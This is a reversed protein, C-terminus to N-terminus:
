YNLPLRICAIPKINHAIIAGTAWRDNAAEKPLLWHYFLSISIAIRKPYQVEAGRAIQIEGYCNAAAAFSSRV